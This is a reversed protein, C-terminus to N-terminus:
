PQRASRTRLPEDANSTWRQPLVALESPDAILWAPQPRPRRPHGVKPSLHHSPGRSQGAESAIQALFRLLLLLNGADSRMQRTDSMSGNVFLNEKARMSEIVSKTSNTAGKLLNAGSRSKSFASNLPPPDRPDCRPDDGARIKRNQQHYGHL